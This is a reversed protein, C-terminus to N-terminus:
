LWIVPPFAFETAIQAAHMQTGGEQSSYPFLLDSVTGAQALPGTEQDWARGRRDSDIEEVPKQTVCWFHSGASTGKIEKQSMM